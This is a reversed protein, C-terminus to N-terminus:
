FTKTSVYYCRCIPKNSLSLIILNEKLRNSIQQLKRSFLISGTLYYENIRPVCITSYVFPQIM